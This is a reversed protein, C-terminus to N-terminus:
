VRWDGPMRVVYRRRTVERVEEFVVDRGESEVAKTKSSTKSHQSSPKSHRSGDDHSSTPFRKAVLAGPKPSPPAPLKALATQINSNPPEPLSVMTALEPLKSFGPPPPIGAPIHYIDWDKRHNSHQSLAHSARSASAKSGHRSASQVVSPVKPPLDEDDEEEIVTVVLVQKNDKSEKVSGGHKSGAPSPVVTEPNAPPRVGHKATAASTVTKVVHRSQRKESEAMEREHLRLNEVRLNHSGPM